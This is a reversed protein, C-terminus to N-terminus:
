YKCWVADFEELSLSIERKISELPEASDDMIKSYANKLIHQLKFHEDVLRKGTELVQLSFTFKEGNVWLYPFAEQASDWIETLYCLSGERYLVKYANSFSQRYDRSRTAV